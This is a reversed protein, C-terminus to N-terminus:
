SHSLVVFTSILFLDNKQEFISIYTIISDLVKYCRYKYLVVLFITMVVVIGIIIMVNAFAGGFRDASSESDSEKFPAYRCFDDCKSFYALYM